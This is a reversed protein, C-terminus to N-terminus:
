LKAKVQLNNQTTTETSFAAREKILLTTLHNKNAKRLILTVTTRMSLTRLNGLISKNSGTYTAVTM